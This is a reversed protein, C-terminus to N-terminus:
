LHARHSRMLKQYWEKNEVYEEKSPLAIGNKGSFEYVWEIFESCEDVKLRSTQRFFIVQVQDEGVLKQYNMFHCQSKLFTKAEDLSLAAEIAYLTFMIHLWGNQDLSRKPQIKRLEVYAGEEMLKIFRERAKLREPNGEKLNYEAM